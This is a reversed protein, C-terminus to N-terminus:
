KLFEGMSVIFFAMDWVSPKGAILERARDGWATLVDDLEKKEAEAQKLQQVLTKIEPRIEPPIPSTM